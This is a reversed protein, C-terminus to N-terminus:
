VRVEAKKIAALSLMAFIVGAGLFTLSTIEFGWKGWSIYEFVINRFLMIPSLIILISSIGGIFGFRYFIVAIFTFICSIGLAFGLYVVRTYANGIGPMTLIVSTVRGVIFVINIIINMLIISLMNFAVTGKIYDWRSLGLSISYPFISYQNVFPIIASLTMMSSIFAMFISSSVDSNNFVIKVFFMTFFFVLWIFAMSRILLRNCRCFFRILAKIDNM